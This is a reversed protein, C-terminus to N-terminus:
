TKGPALGKVQGQQPVKMFNKSAWEELRDLDEQLTARGVLTNVEGSLKTDNGFKILTYKIGDDLDSIFVNFLTQGV